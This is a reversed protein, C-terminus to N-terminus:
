QYLTESNFVASLKNYLFSSIGMMIPVTLIAGIVDVLYHAKLYVTAFCIGFVFLLSYYFYKRLHRFSIVSIILAIGVHSSPFAGTPKELTTLIYRMFKGVYYPPPDETYLTNFHFQPGVVPVLDYFMYYLYFSFVITFISKSSHQKNDFYFIICIALILPYYSFYCINMFENFWKQSMWESFKLSPQFGWLWQEARVFYDDLNNHFIINKLYGTETYFFSLLLVPYTSRLLGMYKSPYKKNFYVICIIMILLGVRSAFHPLVDELGSVGFCLYIGSVVVYFATAIDLPSFFSSATFSTNKKM